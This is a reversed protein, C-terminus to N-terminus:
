KKKNFSKEFSTAPNEPVIKIIEGSKTKLKMKKGDVGCVHVIFGEVQVKTNCYKETNILLSDAIVKITVQNSPQNKCATAVLLVLTILILRQKM